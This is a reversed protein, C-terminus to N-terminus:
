NLDEGEGKEGDDAVLILVVGVWRWGVGGRARLRMWLGWWCFHGRAGGECECAGEAPM